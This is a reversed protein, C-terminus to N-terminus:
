EKIEFVIPITQNIFILCTLRGYICKDTALLYWFQPWCNSVKQNRYFVMLLKKLRYRYPELDGDISVIRTYLKYQMTKYSTTNYQLATCHMIDYPTNYQM